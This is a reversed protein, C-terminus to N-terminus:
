HNTRRLQAIWSEAMDTKRRQELLHATLLAKVTGSAEGVGLPCSLVRDGIRAHIVDNEVYYRAEYTHGDHRVEVDRVVSQQEM